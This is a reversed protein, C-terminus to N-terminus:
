QVEKLGGIAGGGGQSMDEDRVAREGRRVAQGMWLLFQNWEYGARGAKEALAEGNGLLVIEADDVSDVLVGHGLQVLEHLMQPRKREVEVENFTRSGCIRRGQLPPTPARVGYAFETLLSGNAQSDFVWAPDHILWKGAALAAYYKITSAGPPCFVHTVEAHTPDPMVRGGLEIIVEALRQRQQFSYVPDQRSFGTFGVVVKRQEHCAPPDFAPMIMDLADHARKRKKAPPPMAAAATSAVSPSDLVSSSLPGNALLRLAAPISRIPPTLAEQPISPSSAAATGSDNESALIAARGSIGCPRQKRVVSHTSPTSPGTPQM